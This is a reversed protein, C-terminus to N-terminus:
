KKVKEVNESGKVANNFIKIRKTIINSEGFIKFISMNKEKTEFLIKEDYDLFKSLRFAESTKKKIKLDDFISSDKILSNFSKNIKNISKNINEINGNHFLFNNNKQYVPIFGQSIDKVKM